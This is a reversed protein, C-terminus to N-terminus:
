QENIVDFSGEDSNVSVLSFSIDAGFEEKLSNLFETLFAINEREQEARAKVKNDRRQKLRKRIIIRELTVFKSLGIIVKRAKISVVDATFIVYRFPFSFLRKRKLMFVAFSYLAKKVYSDIGYEKQLATKLREYARRIVEKTKKFSTIVFYDLDVEKHLLISLKLCASKASKIVEKVAKKVYYDIDVKKHLIINLKACTIKTNEKVTSFSKKVYNDLDFEKHLAYNLQAFVLRSSDIIARFSKKICSDINYEKQM